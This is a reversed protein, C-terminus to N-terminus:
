LVENSRMMTVVNEPRDLLQIRESINTLGYRPRLSIYLEELAPFRRFQNSHGAFHHLLNKPGDDFTTAHVELFLQKIMTSRITDVIWLVDYSYTTKAHYMLASSVSLCHDETLADIHFYVASYYLPAADLFIAHSTGLWRLHNCNPVKPIWNHRGNDSPLLLIDVQPVLFEYIQLRLEYPLRFVLTTLSDDTKRSGYSRM